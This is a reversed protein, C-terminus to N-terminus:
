EGQMNESEAGDRSASALLLNMEINESVFRVVGDSMLVQTGGTHNSGLSIDNFNTGGAYTTSNIAYAINKTGGSATGTAGRYWRRYGVMDAGALTKTNSIEGILITNSLGDTIDRDRVKSIRSLVGQTGYGGQATGALCESLYATGPNYNTAGSTQCGYTGSLKPGDNGYYHTTLLTTSGNEFEKTSSPCFYGPIRAAGLIGDWNAAQVGGGCLSFDIKEFLALQDVQPLIMVHWSLENNGAMGIACPNASNLMGGPPFTTYTELYDHMAVGLQKLNNKCQSRRASERAQQVAPLLLAVLVAIIAIVVLLEILTFGRRKKLSLHVM